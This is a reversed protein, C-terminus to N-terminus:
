KTTKVAGPKEDSLKGRGSSLINWADAVPVTIVAGAEIAKGGVMTPSIIEVNLETANKLDQTM